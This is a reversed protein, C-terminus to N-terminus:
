SATEGSRYLAALSKLARHLAVRVAGETMGLSIGVERASRGEISVAEVIARQKEPLSALLTTADRLAAATETEAAPAEIVDSYDDIDLHNRYGKRRLHDILKYHAIARVWPVLPQSQDWTHRKLHIALLTDQVIDETEATSRGSRQLGRRVIARLRAALAELVRRYAAEDGAIAARMHADLEDLPKQM